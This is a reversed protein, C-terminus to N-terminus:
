LVSVVSDIQAEFKEEAIGGHCFIPICLKFEPELFFRNVDFHLPKTKFGRQRLNGVVRPLVADPVIIPIMYPCVNDRELHDCIGFKDTRDRFHMFYKKRVGMEHDLKRRALLEAKKAPMFGGDYLSYSMFTLDLALTKLWTSSRDTSYEFLFKAMNNFRTIRKRVGAKQLRVFNIFETSQSRVAGLAYCFFFKSFSYLSYDGIFGLERNRNKGALIHACDEVVVLRHDMAFGMVKEVNQPFGYQHYMLMAKTKRSLAAAPFAYNDIPCVGVIWVM